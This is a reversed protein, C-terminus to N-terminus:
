SRELEQLLAARLDNRADDDVASGNARRVTFVDTVRAGETHLRAVSISWGGDSFARALDHLLGRRDAGRVEVVCAVDDLFRVRAPITTAPRGRSVRHKTGAIADDLAGGIRMATERPLPRGRGDDFVFVDFVTGDSRVDLRADLVSAGESAFAAALDALLGPRDRALVSARQPADLSVLAGGATKGALRNVVRLSSWARADARLDDNTRGRLFAVSAGDVFLQPPDYPEDDKGVAPEPEQSLLARARSRVDDDARARTEPSLLAERVADVCARLLQAKWLTGIGPGVACWDCWTLIALADLRWPTTVIRTVDDIVAPDGLDRRQSTTSLLLHHLVLFAVDDIDDTAFGPIALTTRAIREGVESHDGPLGKAIDHLLSAAVVVVPREIRRLVPALPAPLALDGLVDVGAGGMIAAAIDGCRALHADTTFAHIGDHKVRGTLRALDPLLPQLQGRELLGTFAGPFVPETSTLLALLSPADSRPRRPVVGPCFRQLADDVVVLAQRMAVVARRVLAEGPRLSGAAVDPPLLAAAAEAAAAHLRHESRGAAVVLAARVTLLERRVETLVEVESPFLVGAGLLVPLVDGDGGQMGVDVGSHCLGAWAILHLDRLGGPGEKVDPEVLSPSNHFRARRALAEDVRAMMLAHRRRAGLERRLETLIATGFALDGAIPRAELLATAAHGQKGAVDDFLALLEAPARVSWSVKLGADWCRSVISGVDVSDMDELLFLADVDAFPLLQRRALGGLALVCARSPLEGAALRVSAEVDDSFARAVVDGRERLLLARLDIM